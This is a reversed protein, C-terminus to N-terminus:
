LVLQLVSDGVILGVVVKWGVVNNGVSSGVVVNDGVM